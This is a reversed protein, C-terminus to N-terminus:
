AALHLEFCSSYNVHYRHSSADGHAYNHSRQMKTIPRQDPCLESGANGIASENPRVAFPPRAYKLSPNSKTRHKAKPAVYGAKGNQVIKGQVKVVNQNASYYFGSWM